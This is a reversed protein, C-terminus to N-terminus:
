VEIILKGLKEGSFLRQFTEPFTEIGEVITERYKLKGAALWGAMEMIGEPIRKAYDFILFGEM